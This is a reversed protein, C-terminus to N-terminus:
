GNRDGVNSKCVLSAVVFGTLGVLTYLRTTGMTDPLFVAWVSLVILNTVVVFDIVLRLVRKAMQWTTM